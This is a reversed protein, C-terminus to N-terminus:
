STICVSGGACPLGPAHATFAASSLVLQPEVLDVFVQLTDLSTAVPRFSSWLTSFAEPTIQLAGAGAGDVCGLTVQHVPTIGAVLTLRSAGIQAVVPAAAAAVISMALALLRGNLTVFATTAPTLVQALRLLERAITHYCQGGTVSTRFKQDPCEHGHQTRCGADSVVYTAQKGVIQVDGNSVITWRDCLDLLARARCAREQIQPQDYVACFHAFAADLAATDPLATPAPGGPAYPTAADLQATLALEASTGALVVEPLRTLLTHAHADLAARAVTPRTFVGIIQEDFLATWDQDHPNYVVRKRTELPTLLM